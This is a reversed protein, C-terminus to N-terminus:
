NEKTGRIVAQTRSRVGLKGLIRGVHVKVTAESIFLTKAIEKNALGQSVLEFVERERPSLLEDPSKRRGHRPIDLRRAKAHDQARGLIESLRRRWEIRNAITALLRPCARYACVFADIEGIRIAALFADEALARASGEETEVALIARVCPALVRVQPSRTVQEAASCMERARESDGLCARAIAQTALFEGREGRTAPLDEDLGELIAEEVLGQSLLLRSRRTSAEALLYDDSTMEAMEEVEDLLRSARAFNRLGVHATSATLQAYPAVFALRADAADDLTGETLGLAIEYRGTSCLVQASGNLFSTRVIPDRVKDLVHMASRHAEVLGGLEGM